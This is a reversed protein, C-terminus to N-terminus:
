AKGHIRLSSLSSLFSTFPGPTVLLGFFISRVVDIREITGHLAVTVSIQVTFALVILISALLLSFKVLGLKVMANVYYQALKRLQKM